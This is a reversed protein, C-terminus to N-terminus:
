SFGKALFVKTLAKTLWDCMDTNCAAALVRADKSAEMQIKLCSAQLCADAEEGSPARRCKDWRCVFAFLCTSFNSQLGRFVSSQRRTFHGATFPFGYTMIILFM